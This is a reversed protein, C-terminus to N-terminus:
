FYVVSKSGSVYKLSKALESMSMDFDAKTRAMAGIGPVDMQIGARSTFPVNASASVSVTTMLSRGSGEELGGEVGALSRSDVARKADVEAIVKEQEASADGASIGPSALNIGGGGAVGIGTPMEVSRGIAKRVKELDSTLYQKLVLGTLAGFAMVSAEDGPKLSNQVFELAAKKADMNGYIDSGQMDLVFFYKRNTEQQVSQGAIPAAEKLVRSEGSEHVEFETITKREKNDYLIFDGKKLGLVPRGSADLVRVPVLKVVAAADHRLVKQTQNQRSYFVSPIVFLFILLFALLRQSNILRGRMRKAPPALFLSM